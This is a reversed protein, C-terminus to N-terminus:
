VHCSIFIHSGKLADSSFRSRQNGIICDKVLVSVNKEEIDRIRIRDPFILLDIKDSKPEQDVYEAVSVLVRLQDKYKNLEHSLVKAFGQRDIDPEWETCKQNTLLFIHKDHYPLNSAEESRANTTMDERLFGHKKDEEETIDKEDYFNSNFHINSNLGKQVARSPKSQSLYATVPIIIVILVSLQTSTLYGFKYLVALIALAIFVLKRM